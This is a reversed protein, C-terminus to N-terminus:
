RLRKYRRNDSNKNQLQRRRGFEGACHNSCFVRRRRNVNQKRNANRSWQRQSKASWLFTSGCNECVAEVDHYKIHAAAHEKQHEGHMKLELNTIDNNSPDGDIHHVDEDPLLERGLKEELLLRPYSKNIKTGDKKNVILARVRGDACMNVYVTRESNSLHKDVM